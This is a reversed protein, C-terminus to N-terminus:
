AKSVKVSRWKEPKPKHVGQFMVDFVSKLVKDSEAVVIVDMGPAWTLHMARGSYAEIKGNERKKTNLM